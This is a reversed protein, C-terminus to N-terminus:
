EYGEELYNNYEGLTRNLRANNLLDSDIEDDVTLNRKGTEIQQVLADSIKNLLTEAQENTLMIAEQGTEDSVGYPLKALYRGHHLTITTLYKGDIRLEYGDGSIDVYFDDVTLVTAYWSAFDQKTENRHLENLENLIRHKRIKYTNSSKTQYHM